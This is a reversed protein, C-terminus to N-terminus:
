DRAFSVDHAERSARAYLEFPVTAGAKKNAFADLIQRVMGTEPRLYKGDVTEVEMGILNKSQALTCNPRGDTCGDLVVVEVTKSYGPIIRIGRSDHSGLFQTPRMQVSVSHISFDLGGASGSHPGRDPTPLMDARATTATLVVLFVLRIRHRM